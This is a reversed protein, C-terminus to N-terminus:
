GALFSGSTAGISNTRRMVRDFSIRSLVVDARMLGIDRLMRDDMYLLPMLARQLAAARCATVIRRGASTALSAVELMNSEKFEQDLTLLAVPDSAPRV